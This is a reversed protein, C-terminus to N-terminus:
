PKATIAMQVFYRESKKEFSQTNREQMSHARLTRIWQAINTM